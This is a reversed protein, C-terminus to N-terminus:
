SELQCFGTMVCLEPEGKWSVPTGDEHTEEETLPMLKAVMVQSSNERAQEEVETSDSM